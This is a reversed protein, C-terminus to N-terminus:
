AYTIKVKGAGSGTIVYESQGSGKIMFGRSAGSKLETEWSDPVTITKSQGPELKVEVRSSSSSPKAKSTKTHLYLNVPIGRNWGSGNDTRTITFEIKSVTKGSCAEAIETGYFWGGLWDGNSTWTGQRVDSETQGNSRWSGRSNPAITKPSPVAATRTPTTTLPPKVTTTGASAAVLHLDKNGNGSDKFWVSTAQTWGAGPAVTSTTVNPVTSDVTAIKSDVAAIQAATSTDLETISAKIPDLQAAMGVDLAGMKSVVQLGGGSLRVVLVVDGAARDTYSGSCGVATLPESGYDLNVTTGNEGVASVVAVIFPSTQNLLGKLASANDTM